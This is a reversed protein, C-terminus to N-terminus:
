GRATKELLPELFRRAAAIREDILEPPMAAARDTGDVRELALPGSFGGSFLIRFMQEHDIQGSGPVPFNAQARLGLHDKICVAKVHPALDALDPDPWIGEYFSVNGADWCIKLRESRLRNVVQMCAAAHATIGTHPKLTITVGINEAHRVAKELSAYFTDVERQWDRARKPVNPFKTFYWPGTGVVTRIEFERYFDLQELYLKMGEPTHIEKGLGIFSMFPTLGADAFRRRLEARAPLALAPTFVPEKAHTHFPMIYRYGAKRIGEIARALPLAAYPLTQCGFEYRPLPAAATVVAASKLLDRRTLM